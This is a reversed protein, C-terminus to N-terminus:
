GPPQAENTNINWTLITTEADDGQFTVNKKGVPLIKQGDYIGPKIHIVTRDTSKEPVSEIAKQVTKFDGSGDGSVTIEKGQASVSFRLFIMVTALSMIKKFSILFYYLM